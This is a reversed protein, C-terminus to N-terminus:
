ITREYVVEKKSYRYSETLWQSLPNLLYRWVNPYVMGQADGGNHLQAAKHLILLRNLAKQVQSIEIFFPLQKKQALREQWLKIYNELDTSVNLQFCHLLGQQLISETLAGCTWMGFKAPIKEPIKCSPTYNIQSWRTVIAFRNRGSENAASRHWIRSDFVIADGAQVPLSIFNQQWYPSLYMTDVFDPQWFDIAPKIEGLHSNPLLELVGERLSVDDLPLWISFEYPAEKSYAIDQHCPVPGNAYASKSIINFKSLKVEEKIFDSAIQKLSNEVLKNVSATIPSPNVWRSVSALYDKLPYNLESACKKIDIIIKRCISKIQEREYINNLVLFGNKQFYEKTKKM